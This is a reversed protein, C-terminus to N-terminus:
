NAIEQNIMKLELLGLTFYCSGLCVFSTHFAYAHDMGKLFFGGFVSLAM